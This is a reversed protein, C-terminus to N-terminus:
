LRDRAAHDPRAEPEYIEDYEDVENENSHSLVRYTNISDNQGPYIRELRRRLSSTIQAPMNIVDPIPLNFSTQFKFPSQLNNCFLESKPTPTHRYRYIEEKEHNNERNDYEREEPQTYLRTNKIYVIRNIIHSLLIFCLEM